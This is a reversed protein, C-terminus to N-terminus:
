NQPIEIHIAPDKQDPGLARSAGKDNRFAGLLGNLLETQSGRRQLSKPDIDIAQLLSPDAQVRHFRYRPNRRDKKGMAAVVRAPETGEVIKGGLWGVAPTRARMTDAM